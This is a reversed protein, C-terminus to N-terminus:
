SVMITISNHLVMPPSCCYEISVDNVSAADGMGILWSSTQSANATLGAAAIQEAVHDQKITALGWDASFLSPNFSHMCAHQYYHSHSPHDGFHPAVVVSLAVVGRVAVVVAYIACEGATNNSFLHQWLESGQPMPNTATSGNSPLAFPYGQDLYPTSNVWLGNHAWLTVSPGLAAASPHGSTLPLCSRASFHFCLSPPM